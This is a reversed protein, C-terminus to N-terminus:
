KSLFWVPPIPMETGLPDVGNSREFIHAVTAQMKAADCLQVPANGLFGDKICNHYRFAVEYKPFRLSVDPTKSCAYMRIKREIVEGSLYKVRVTKEESSMRDELGLTEAVCHLFTNKEQGVGVLLVFGNQTALKGYCSEPATPTTIFADDKVFAKVKEKDGFVVMSLVPNESRVGDKRKTAIESFAGLDTKSCAFDLTIEKGFFLNGATHTPVCFLGGKKTFYEVLTDLLMEGNGEIDGVSRLSSHM